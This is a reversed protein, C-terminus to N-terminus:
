ETGPWPASCDRELSLRRLDRLGGRQARVVLADGGWGLCLASM